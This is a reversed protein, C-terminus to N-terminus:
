EFVVETGAAKKFFSNSSNLQDVIQKRTPRLHQEEAFANAKKELLARLTARQQGSNFMERIKPVFTSRSFFGETKLVPAFELLEPEPLRCIVKDGERRLDKETLKSLDVGWNWRVTIWYVGEWDGIFNSESHEVVLQTTTRRTVLFSMAESKLVSLTVKENVRTDLIGPSEEKHAFMRVSVIGTAVVLAALLSLIVLWKKM